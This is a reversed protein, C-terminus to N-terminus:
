LMLRLDIFRPQFFLVLKGKIKLRHHLTITTNASSAPLRTNKLLSNFLLRKFINDSSFVYRINAYICSNHTVRNLM